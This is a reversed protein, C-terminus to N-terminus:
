TAVLSKLPRALDGLAGCDVIQRADMIQRVIRRERGANMLVAGHLRGRRVFFACWSPAAADGRMVVADDPECGGLVQINQDYQDTWFWPAADATVPVGLITRAATQAQLEANEWSELRVGMLSWRERQRAVDGVAYIGDVSSRTHADVLVGDACEVGAARALADNALAGVAVVVTDAPITTGDELMIASVSGQGEIAKIRANTQIDVGHSRHLKALSEGLFGGLIRGLLVAASEVVTVACGRKVAAAAIELGLFGGGLVVIRANPTLRACLRTSDQATRLTLVGDLEAGPIDLRRARVGTALVLQDYALRSSDALVIQQSAPEIASVRTDVRVDIDHEAYYESPFIVTGSLPAGALIDKSLPPREYPLEVEDGILLIEDTSGQKRLAAATRAGSQGAGIIIVRQKM